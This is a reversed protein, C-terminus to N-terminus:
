SLPLCTVTVPDRIIRFPISTFSRRMIVTVVKFSALASYAPDHPLNGVQRYTPCYPLRGRAPMRIILQRLTNGARDPHDISGIAM